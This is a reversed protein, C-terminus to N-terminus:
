AKTFRLLCIQHMEIAPFACRIIRKLRITGAPLSANQRECPMATAMSEETLQYLVAFCCVSIVYIIITMEMFAAVALTGPLRGTSKRWKGTRM